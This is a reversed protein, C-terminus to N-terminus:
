EKGEDKILSNTISAHYFFAIVIGWFLVTGIEMNLFTFVIATLFTPLLVFISKKIRPLMEEKKLISIIMGYSVLISLCIGVLGAISIEVNFYRLALLFVAIYGILSAGALLGKTKYKIGYYVIGLALIIVSVILALFLENTTIDSYVYKNQQIEYVLPIKGENLLTAMNNAQLLYEQLQETSSNTTSGVSLQLIGSSVEEDFYTTLLTDGDIKIAIQKTITETDEQSDEATNEEGETQEETQTDKAVTTQIYTNTINRLKETGEKNFQLNIFVATAGAQTTGYGAQVIKLDANTMLVDQTDNDVIEFKGQASLESIVLDTNKNEPLQLLITGNEKNQRIEYDTIGLKKLRKELIRQTLAYNEKTLLAEDNVKKEETKAVETQTDGEAIRNGEADYSITELVEESVKFEVKRYGNLDRALLYEPLINSVTYQKDLFIGGFSIMSVLVIVLLILVIKLGRYKKM